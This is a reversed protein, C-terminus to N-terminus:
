PTLVFGESGGYPGTAQTALAVAEDFSAPNHYEM